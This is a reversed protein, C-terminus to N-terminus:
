ENVNLMSNGNTGGIAYIKGHAVAVGLGGRATPM